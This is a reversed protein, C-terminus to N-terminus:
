GAGTDGELFLAPIQARAGNAFQVLGFYFPPSPHFTLWDATCAVVKARLEALPVDEYAAIETGAEPSVGFASKPFQVTGTAKDRGGIFAMIDRSFRYEMSLPYKNGFEARPGWDMGVEGNFSLFRM